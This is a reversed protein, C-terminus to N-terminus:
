DGVDQDGRAPALRRPRDADQIEPPVRMYDLVEAIIEKVVPAAVVGGYYGEKTPRYVSVLVAVRPWSAPAGGLFSGVYANPEYGRGDRRAIQATGTKGFVQYDDLAAQKGTGERVTEVLARLRFAEATAPSLVQRIVIPESRDELTQGDVGIIGRVIRPQMLKGGNCVTSFATLLQIQTVSVEQGIPISQPSYRPNWSELPRVIGPSEGPLHIGTPSGFGFKELYDHLRKMGCRAGLMGMGINSSKSIVQHMTLVDYAHTDRILRGGFSHVPGQINFVEDLRTLKDELAASAIFPKFISGPEFADAIVRNRWIEAAAEQRKPSLKEFGEPVAHAPDFDPATALALIEGSYPDMVLASVWTAAHKELTARVKTQVFQQLYTDLTLVITAGDEPPIYNESRLRRRVADVTAAQQGPKGNLIKDYNQEIGALGQLDIGVFGLVHPAVPGQPYVRFGESQVGFGRLGRARCLAEFRQVFGDYDDTAIRRALWVFRKEKQEVLLQELEAASRGVFPALSHAAFTPNSVCFPDVFISPRRVTGALVRGHADWIEGRLAPITWTSTQQRQARTRLTDGQRLEIRALQVGGGVLLLTTLTGVAAIKLM